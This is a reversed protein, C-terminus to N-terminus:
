FIEAISQYLEDVKGWDIEEGAELSTYQLLYAYASALTNCHKNCVNLRNVESCVFEFDDDTDLTYELLELVSTVAEAIELTHLEEYDIHGYKALTESYNM